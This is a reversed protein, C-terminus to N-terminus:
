FLCDNGASGWVTVLDRLYDACAVFEAQDALPRSDADLYLECSGSGSGSDWDAWMVWYNSALLDYFQVTIFGTIDQDCYPIQGAVGDPSPTSMVLDWEPSCPCDEGPPM